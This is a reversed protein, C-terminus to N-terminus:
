HNNRTHWEDLSRSESLEMPYNARRWCHLEAEHEGSRSRTAVVASIAVALTLWALNRCHPFRRLSQLTPGGSSNRSHDAAGRTLTVQGRATKKISGSSRQRHRSRTSSRARAGAPWPVSNLWGVDVNEINIAESPCELLSCSKDGLASARGASAVGAQCIHMDKHASLM